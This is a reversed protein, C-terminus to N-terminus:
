HGVYRGPRHNVWLFTGMVMAALVSYLVREVPVVFLALAVITCDIAMQVKGARIGFRQQCYLSVITAGGLSAKHRAMFLCGTGMLLGGLIAAYVPDLSDFRIFRPGIETLASLLAVAVFTKLTFERGMKKWAFWYFPLNIAFFIKGFSIGTWYHLLTAAGATSGTLLGAHAYLMLTVSCFLSGAFLAQADEGRGHRAPPTFGAALPMDTSDPMKPPHPTM